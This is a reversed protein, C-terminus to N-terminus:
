TDLGHLPLPTEVVIKLTGPFVFTIMLLALKGVLLDLALKCDDHVLVLVGVEHFHVFVLLHDQVDPEVIVGSPVIAEVRVRFERLEHNQVFLGAFSKCPLLVVLLILEMESLESGQLLNAAPRKESNHSFLAADLQFLVKNIEFVRVVLEQLHFKGSQRDDHASVRWIFHRVIRFKEEKCNLRLLGQQLSFNFRLIEDNHVNGAGFSMFTLDAAVLLGPNELADKEERFCSENTLSV